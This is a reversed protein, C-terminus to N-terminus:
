KTEIYGLVDGASFVYESEICVQALFGSAPSAIEVVKKNVEGECIIEGEEIADGEDFNWIIIGRYEKLNVPRKMCECNNGPEPRPMLADPVIIPVRM